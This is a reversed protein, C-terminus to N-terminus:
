PAPVARISPSSGPRESRMTPWRWARFARPREIRARRAGPRGQGAPPSRGRRPAWRPPCSRPPFPGPPLVEEVALVGQDAEVHALEPLVVGDEGPPRGELTRPSRSRRRARRPPARRGYATTRKSSTSLAVVTRVTKSCIMSLPCRVSAWPRLTLKLFVTTRSVALKPVSRRRLAPRPKLGPDSLCPMVASSTRLMTPESSFRWRVGSNM